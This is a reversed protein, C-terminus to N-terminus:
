RYEMEHKELLKDIVKRITINIKPYKWEKKYRYKVLKCKAVDIDNESNHTGILLYTHKGSNQLNDCLREFALKQGRSLNANKYKVEIIIFLTNGFDLFGDIDTPSITGFKLGSYDKIQRAYERNRIKGREIM